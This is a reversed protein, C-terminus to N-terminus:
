VKWGCEPCLREGGVVGICDGCWAADCRPCVEAALTFAHRRCRRRPGEQVLRPRLRGGTDLPDLSEEAIDPGAGRAVLSASEGNSQHSPEDGVAALREETTARQEYAGTDEGVSAAAEFAGAAAADLPTPALRLVTHEGQSWLQQAGSQVGGRFAYTYRDFRIVDGDRIMAEDRLREDNVYTGNLSRLDTVYFAGSRYEIKAHQGSVTKQALVVDCDPARGVLVVRKLLPFHRGTTVEELSAEPMPVSGADEDERSMRGSARWKFLGIGLGLIGLALVATMAMRFLRPEAPPEVVPEREIRPPPAVVVPPPAAPEEKLPKAMAAQLEAFISQVDALTLARLYGGKTGHGMAQLLEYDAQETFAVSFIRVGLSRAEDVLDERLWRTKQIDQNRSGTDVVGDTIVVIVSEGRSPGTAKLEYLAREVADPINTRAGTYALAQVSRILEDRSDPASLPRLPRVLRAKGDFVVLGVADADDLSDILETVASRVLFNPDNHKMSGSDDVALVISRGPQKAAEAPAGALGAVLALALVSALRRGAWARGGRLKVQIVSM